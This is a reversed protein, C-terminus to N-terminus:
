IMPGSRSLMKWHPFQMYHVHLSGWPLDLIHLVQFLSFLSFQKVYIYVKCRRLTMLLYKRSPVYLETSKYVFLFGGHACLSVRGPHRVHSATSTFTQM